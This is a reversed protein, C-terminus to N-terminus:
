IVQLPNSFIWGLMAVPALTAALAAIQVAVRALAPTLHAMVLRM